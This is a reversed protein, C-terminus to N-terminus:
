SFYPHQSKRILNHLVVATEKSSDRERGPQSYPLLCGHQSVGPVFFQLCVRFVLSLSWRISLLSSFSGTGWHHPVLHQMLVPISFCGGWNLRWILGWGQTVDQYFGEPVRLLHGALGYGTGQSVFVTCHRTVLQTDAITKEKLTISFEYLYASSLTLIQLSYSTFSIGSWPFLLYLLMTVLFHRDQELFPIFKFM